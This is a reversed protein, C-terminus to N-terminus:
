LREDNNRRTKTKLAYYHYRILRYLMEIVEMISLFSIGIWLGTHGGVNSLLDVGSLSPSETYSEVLSTESVFDVAVYNNQIESQWTTSWNAALPIDSKEVFQKIAFTSSLSPASLGSPTVTFLVGSCARTCHSCFQILISEKMSIRVSADNYCPDTINCFQAEIVQDTGPLVVSRINWRYPDVCKCESYRNKFFICEQGLNTVISVCIISFMYCLM